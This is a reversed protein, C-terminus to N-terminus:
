LPNGQLWSIAIALMVILILIIGSFILIGKPFGFNGEDDNSIKPPINKENM